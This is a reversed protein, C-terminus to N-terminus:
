DISSSFHRFSGVLRFFSTAHPDMSEAGSHFSPSSSFHELAAAGLASFAKGGPHVVVDFLGVPIALCANKASKGVQEGSFIQSRHVFLKAELLRCVKLPHPTKAFGNGV